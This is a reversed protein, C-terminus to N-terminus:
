LLCCIQKAKSQVATELRSIRSHCLVLHNDITFADPWTRCSFFISRISGGSTSTDMMYRYILTDIAKWPTRIILPVEKAFM